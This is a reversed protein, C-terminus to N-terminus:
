HLTTGVEDDQELLPQGFRLVSLVEEWFLKWDTGEAAAIYLSAIAESILVNGTERAILNATTEADRCDTEFAEYQRIIAVACERAQWLPIRCVEHMFRLLLAAKDWGCAGKPIYECAYDKRDALAQKREARSANKLDGTLAGYRRFAKMHITMDM